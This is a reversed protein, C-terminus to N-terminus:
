HVMIVDCVTGEADYKWLLNNLWMDGHNLVTFCTEDSEYSKAEREIAHELFSRLDDTYRRLEPVKETQDICHQIANAYFLHVPNGESAFSSSALM